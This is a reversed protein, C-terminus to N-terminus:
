RNKEKEIMDQIIKIERRLQDRTMDPLTSLDRGEELFEDFQGLLGDSVQEFSRILSEEEAVSRGACGSLSAVPLVLLLILIGYLALRKM